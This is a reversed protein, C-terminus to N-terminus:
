LGDEARAHDTTVLLRLEVTTSQELQRRLGRLDDLEVERGLLALYVVTDLMPHPDLDIMEELKTRRRIVIFTPPVQEHECSGNELVEITDERPENPQSLHRTLSGSGPTAAM